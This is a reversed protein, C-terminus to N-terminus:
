PVRFVILRRVLHRTDAVLTDNRKFCNKFFFIAYFFSKKKNNTETTIAAQHTNVRLIETFITKSRLTSYNQQGWQQEYSPRCFLASPAITFHLIKKVQTVSCDSLM